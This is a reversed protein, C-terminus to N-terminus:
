ISACWLRCSFALSLRVSAIKKGSPDELESGSPPKSPMEASETAEQLILSISVYM